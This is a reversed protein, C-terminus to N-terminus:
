PEECGWSHCIIKNPDRQSAGLAGGPYDGATPPLIHPAEDVTIPPTPETSARRLVYKVIFLPRHPSIQDRGADPAGPPAFTDQMPTAQRPEMALTAAAPLPLVLATVLLWSKM